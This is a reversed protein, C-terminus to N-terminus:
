HSWFNSRCSQTGPLLNKNKSRCVDCAYLPRICMAETLVCRKSGILADESNFNHVRTKKVGKRLAKTCFGCHTSASHTSPLKAKKPLSSTSSARRTKMGHQVCVVEGNRDCFRVLKVTERGKM